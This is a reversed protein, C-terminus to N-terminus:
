EASVIELGEMDELQCIYGWGGYLESVALVLENDGERLDLFVADQLNIIGLFEPDRIRFRNNGEFLIKGNLYIIVRDSYGFSLKKIQAKESRLLTRALVLSKGAKQRYRAINLLGSPESVVAKWEIAPLSQQELSNRTNIRDAKFVQSLQWESIMGAPTTPEPAAKFSLENDEEYRFNAFHVTTSNVEENSWVGVSGKSVGHKLDDIVMAPESSNDLYVRAQKGSVEMKMHLWRKHPIAVGDATFGKGNYLQWSELGNFVPMYQLAGPLNSKHPRLYFEEYNEPSQLRFYIGAFAASGEFAIDVEITGNEFEVDKLYASGSISKEGLYSEVKTDSGQFVWRGSEFDVVDSQAIASNAFILMFLLGFKQCRDRFIMTVGSLYVDTLYLPLLHAKDM